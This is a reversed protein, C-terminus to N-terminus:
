KKKAAEERDEADKKAKLWDLGVGGGAVLPVSLPLASCMEHSIMACVEEAAEAVCETVLEDHVQNVIHIDCKAWAREARVRRRINRMALKIMDAASGQVTFNVGIRFASGPNQSFLYALDRVRGTLSLVYGKDRIQKFIKEHYEAIGPYKEFFATHWDICEEVPREIRAKLWLFDKLGQPTQGYLLGFNVNKAITRPFKPDGSKEALALRTTEHLDIANPNTAADIYVKRMSPDNCQHAMIRLELQSYDHVLLVKGPPAVFAAKIPYTYQWKFGGARPINEINPHRSSFRGTATGAQWFDSHIRGTGSNMAQKRLGRVYTGIMKERGKWALYKDVFNPKDPDKSVLTALLGKDVPYTGAKTRETGPPPSMGFKDYVIYAVQQPSGLNFPEGAIEHLEAKLADMEDVIEDEAKNLFNVDIGIGHYEMEAILRTIEMEVAWFWRLTRPKKELAPLLKERWVRLTWRADDAAYEDESKIIHEMGPLAEGALATQRYEPLIVDYLDYILGGKGKLRLRSTGARTEDVMYAAVWTDAYKCLVEIGMRMLFQLDFAGNHMVVLKDRLSLIGKVYRMVDDFRYARSSLVPIYWARDGAALAVGRISDKHPSLGTTELDFSFVGHRALVDDIESTLLAFNNTTILSAATTMPV